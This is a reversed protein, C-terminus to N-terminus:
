KKQKRKRGKFTGAHSEKIRYRRRKAHCNSSHTHSSCGLRNWTSLQAQGLATLGLHPKGCAPNGLVPGQCDVWEVLGRKLMRGIVARAQQDWRTQGKPTNERLNLYLHIRDPWIGFFDRAAALFYLFDHNTVEALCIRIQIGVDFRDQLSESKIAKALDHQLCDSLGPGSEVMTTM